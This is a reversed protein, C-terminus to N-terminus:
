RNVDLRNRKKTHIYLILDTCIPAGCGYTSWWNGQDFKDDKQERGKHALSRGLLGVKNKYPSIEHNVVKDQKEIKVLPSFIKLVVMVSNWFGFSMVIDFVNKAKVSKSHTSEHREDSTFMAKLQAKKDYLSHLKLFCTAFSTAGPKAIDRKIITVANAQDIVKAFHQLKSVGELMLDLTHAVCRIWFISPRMEKLLMEAAVNNTAKDTVCTLIDEVVDVLANFIYSSFLNHLYSTDGRSNVCLNMISRRKMDTWADTMVSCGEREWEEELSKLKEQRCGVLGLTGLAECFLRFPENEIANFPISSEFIWMACYQRVVHTREKSIADHINQQKETEARLAAEHKRKQCKKDKAVILAKMCKEKDEKTLHEFVSVLLEYIVPAQIHKFNTEIISYKTEIEDQSPTL